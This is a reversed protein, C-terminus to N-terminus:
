AWRRSRLLGNRGLGLKGGSSGAAIQIHDLLDAATIETGLLGAYVSALQARNMARNAHRPRPTRAAPAPRLSEPASAAAVRSANMDFAIVRDDTVDSGWGGSGWARPRYGVARPHDSIEFLGHRAANRAYTEFQGVLELLSRRGVKYQETFLELNAAM